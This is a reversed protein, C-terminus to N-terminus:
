GQQKLKLNDCNVLENDSNITIFQRKTSSSKLEQLTLMFIFNEDQVSPLASKSFDIDTSNKNEKVYCICM